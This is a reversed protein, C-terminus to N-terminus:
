CTSELYVMIKYSVVKIPIMKFRKKTGLKGEFTNMVKIVTGDFQKFQLNSKRLKPKGIKERSNGLIFTVDSGTYVRM